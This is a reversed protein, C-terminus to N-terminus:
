PQLISKHWSNKVLNFAERKNLRLKDGEWFEFYYPTFSFGGWYDPCITLNERALVEEYHTRVLEYSNIEKSQNSSIALANKGKSRSKFYDRSYDNSVKRIKAKIRIQLNIKSWFMVASIQDHSDFQNSKPSEYNTFFIFQDNDIFKLNVFRSDVENKEPSFSSISIAEISSQNALIAEEYKRKLIIYPEQNSIKQFTIM